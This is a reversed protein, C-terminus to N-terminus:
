EQRLLQQLVRCDNASNNDIRPFSYLGDFFIPLLRVLYYHWLCLAGLFVNPGAMIEELQTLFRGIALGMCIALIMSFAM